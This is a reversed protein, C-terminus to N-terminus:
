KIIFYLQFRLLNRVLNDDSKILNQVDDDQIDCIQYFVNRSAPLKDPNFKYMEKEVKFNKYEDLEPDALDSNECNLILFCNLFIKM